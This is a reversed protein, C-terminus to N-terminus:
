PTRTWATSRCLLGGLVCGRSTMSNGDLTIQMVYTRDRRRDYAEGSLMSAAAPKLTMVLEDGLTEDGDPDRVWTNRACLQAGCSTIEMRVSGDQRTWQGTLGSGAQAPPPGGLLVFLCLAAAAVRVM